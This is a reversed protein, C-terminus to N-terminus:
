SLGRRPNKGPTKMPNRKRIVIGCASGSQCGNKISAHKITVIERVTALNHDPAPLGEAPSVGLKGGLSLVFGIMGPNARKAM